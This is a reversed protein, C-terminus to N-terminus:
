DAPVICRRLANSMKAHKIIFGGGGRKSQSVMRNLDGIWVYHKSIAWKSHDQSDKYETGNVCVKEIDTIQKTSKILHGRKWTEVQWEPEYGILYESYIDIEYYPPKAVHSVTDSFVVKTMLDAKCSQHIMIENQRIYIHAQMHYLQGIVLKIFTEDMLRTIYMFSQGYVLESQEISSISNGKFERPFNPVSHVFWSMHTDNWAVIGKCHGKKTTNDGLHSTEDNYVLWSTWPADKYLSQIWENLECPQFAEQDYNYTVGHSGHPFKLAINMFSGYDVKERIDKKVNHIPNPTPTPNQSTTEACCGCCNGM